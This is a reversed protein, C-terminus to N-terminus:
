KECGIGNGDRDFGHRDPQLVIFNTYSIETCDLDPPPPPICVTPYEAACLAPDRTPIPSSTPTRTSAGIPTPTNTSPPPPPGFPTSTSAGAPEVGARILPMYACPHAACDTAAQVLDFAAVLAIAVVALLIIVVHRM